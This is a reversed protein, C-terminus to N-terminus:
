KGNLSTLVLDLKAEMKYVTSLISDVKESHANMRKELTDLRLEQRSERAISGRLTKQLSIIWGGIGLFLPVAIGAVWAPIM